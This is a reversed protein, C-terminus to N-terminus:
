TEPSWEVPTQTPPESLPWTPFHAHNGVPLVGVKKNVNGGKNDKLVHLHTNIPCNCNSRTKLSSNPAENKNNNQKLFILNWFSKLRLILSFCRWILVIFVQIGSPFTITDDVHFAVFLSFPWILFLHHTSDRWWRIVFFSEINKESSKSLSLIRWCIETSQQLAQM